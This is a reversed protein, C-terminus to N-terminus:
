YHSFCVNDAQCQPTVYSFSRFALGDLIVDIRQLLIKTEKTDKKQQQRVTRRVAGGANAAPVTSAINSSAAVEANILEREEEQSRLWFKGSYKTFVALVAGVFLGDSMTGHQRGKPISSLEVISGVQVFSATPIVSMKHLVSSQKKQTSFNRFSLSKFKRESSFASSERDKMDMLLCSNHMLEMMNDDYINTELIMKLAQASKEAILLAEGNSQPGAKRANTTTRINTAMTTAMM